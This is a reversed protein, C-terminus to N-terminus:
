DSFRDIIKDASEEETTMVELIINQLTAMENDILESHNDCLPNKLVSQIKGKFDSYIERNAELWEQMESQSPYDEHHFVKM